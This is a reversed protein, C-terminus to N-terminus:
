RHLAYCEDGSRRRQQRRPLQPEERASSPAGDDSFSRAKAEHDGGRRSILVPSIALLSHRTNRVGVINNRKILGRREGTGKSLDEPIEIFTDRILDDIRIVIGDSPLQDSLERKKGEYISSRKEQQDRQKKRPVMDIPHQTEISWTFRKKKHQFQKTKLHFNM